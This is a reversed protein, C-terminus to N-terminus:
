FGKDEDSNEEDVDYLDIESHGTDYENEAPAEQPTARQSRAAAATAAARYERYSKQQESPNQFDQLTKVGLRRLSRCTRAQTM